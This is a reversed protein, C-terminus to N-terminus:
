EALPKGRHKKSYEGDFFMVQILLLFQFVEIVPEGHHCAATTANATFKYLLQCRSATM